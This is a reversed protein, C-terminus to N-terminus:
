FAEEHNRWRLYSQYVVGYMAGWAPNHQQQEDEPMLQPWALVHAWEHILTDIRCRYDGNSDIRIHYQKNQFFTLGHNDKLPVTRVVVPKPTPCDTRLWSLLRRWSARQNPNLAAVLIHYLEPFESFSSIQM